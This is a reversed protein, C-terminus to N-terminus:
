RAGRHIKGVRGLTTKGMVKKRIAACAHIEFDTADYGKDEEEFEALQLAQAQEASHAEIIWSDGGHKSIARKREQDLRGCTATHIRFTAVGERTKPDYFCVYPVNMKLLPKEPIPKSQGKLHRVMRKTALHSQFREVAQKMYRKRRSREKSESPPQNHRAMHGAYWVALKRQSDMLVPVPIPTMGNPPVPFARLDVLTKTRNISQVTYGQEAAMRVVMIRRKRDKTRFKRVVYAKMAKPVAVTKPPAKKPKRKRMKMKKKM